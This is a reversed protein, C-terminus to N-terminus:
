DKKMLLNFFEDSVDEIYSGKGNLGECFSVHGGEKTLIFALNQNSTIVLTPIKVKAPKGYLKTLEYYEDCNNLGMNKATVLNHFEASTKINLIKKKEEETYFDTKLLSRTMAKLLPKAMYNFKFGECLLLDARKNDM